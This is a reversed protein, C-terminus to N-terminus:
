MFTKSYVYFSFLVVIVVIVADLILMIGFGPALNEQVALNQSTNTINGLGNGYSDVTPGSQNNMAAFYMVGGVVLFMCFLGFVLGGVTYSM